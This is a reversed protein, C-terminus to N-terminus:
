NTYLGGGGGGLISIPIKANKSKADFTPQHAVGGGGGGGLFPFQSKLM